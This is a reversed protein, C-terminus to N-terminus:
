ASFCGHPGGRTDCACLVSVARSRALREKATVKGATCGSSNQLSRHARDGSTNGDHQEGPAGMRRVGSGRQGDARRIRRSHDGDRPGGVEGRDDRVGCGDLGHGPGHRAAARDRARGPEVDHVRRRGAGRGRSEGRGGGVAQGRRDLDGRARRQHRARGDGPQGGRHGDLVVGLVDRVDLTLDLVVAERHLAVDVGVIPEEHHVEQAVDRPGVQGLHDADVAQGLVGLDARQEDRAGSVAELVVQDGRHIWRRRRREGRVDGADVRVEGIEARVRRHHRALVLLQRERDRRGVDGFPGGLVRERHRAELLELQGLRDLRLARVALEVRRVARATRVRIERLDVGPDARRCGGALLRVRQRVRRVRDDGLGAADHRARERRPAGLERRDVCLERGQAIPQARGVRADARVVPHDGGRLRRVAVRHDGVVRVQRELVRRQEVQGRHGGGVGVVVEIQGAAREGADRAREDAAALVDAPADRDDAVVDGVEVELLDAGHAGCGPAPQAINLAVSTGVITTGASTGPRARRAAQDIRGREWM